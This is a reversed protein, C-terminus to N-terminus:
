KKSLKYMQEFLSLQKDLIENKFNRLKDLHGSRRLYKYVLNEYSFEGKNKLGSTRYEGLKDKLKDLLEISEEYNEVDSNDIITDIKSTWNKVKKRLVEKDISVNEKKPEIKWKDHLVSYVGNSYSGKNSDEVYLEVDYGFITIDHNSNFIVKKVNFLEEYLNLNDKPFQNFDLSIHLDIDSYDSWGYNTLSGIFLIDDVVVPVKLFGIFEEAIELLRERVEPNLKKNDNWFKPNLEKKVNFSKIIKENSV